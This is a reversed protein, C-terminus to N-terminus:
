RAFGHDPQETVHPLPVRVRVKSQTHSAVPTAAARDSHATANLGDSCAGHERLSHGDGGVAGVGAETQMGPAEKWHAQLLPSRPACVHLSIPDPSSGHLHVLRGTVATGVLGAGTVGTGVVGAGTVGTGVLGGGTVGDGVNVGVLVQTYWICGHDAQECVHPWPTRLLDISQM